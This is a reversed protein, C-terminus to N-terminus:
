RTKGSGFTALRDIIAKYRYDPIIQVAGEVVVCCVVISTEDCFWM